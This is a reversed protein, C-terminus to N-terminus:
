FVILELHHLFHVDDMLYLTESALQNIKVLGDGVGAFAIQPLGTRVSTPVTQVPDSETEIKRGSNSMKGASEVVVLPETQEFARVAHGGFHSMTRIGIM